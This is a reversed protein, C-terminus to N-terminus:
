ADHNIANMVRRAIQPSGTKGQHGIGGLRTWAMIEHFVMEPSTAIHQVFISMHTKQRDLQDLSRPRVMREHIALPQGFSTDIGIVGYHTRTRGWREEPFWGGGRCRGM